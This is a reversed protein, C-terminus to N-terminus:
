RARARRVNERLFIEVREHVAADHELHGIHSGDPLMMLESGPIKRHMDEAIWAPSITDRAGGIVLTPAKITSLYPEADHAQLSLAMHGYSRQDLAVFHDLYHQWDERRCHAPQFMGIAQGVVFGFPGTATNALTQRVLEPEECCLRLFPEAMQRAAADRLTSLPTRYACLVLVLGRVRDPHRHVLELAVQGGMSHGVLVATRIRLHALLAIADRVNADITCQAPNVPPPSFGHGRYDFLVVRYRPAFYDVFYRWSMADCALGNLCLLTTGRGYTWFALSAGDFSRFTGSRTPPTSPEHAM